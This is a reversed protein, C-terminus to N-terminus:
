VEDQEVLDKRQYVLNKLAEVAQKHQRIKTKDIFELSWGEPCSENYNGTFRCTHGRVGFILPINHESIYNSYAVIYGDETIAIAEKLATYDQVSFIFIKVPRGKKIM